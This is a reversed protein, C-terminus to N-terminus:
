RFIARKNLAQQYKRANSLHQSYTKAFTHYGSFDEKACFYLYGHKRYNLVADIHQPAPISIPGPPLGYILYTNYAHKKQTDSILIRHINPTASQAYRVTPDAQLRMGSHLRNIYVGAIDPMEDTKNTEGNVISALTVVEMKNMKLAKLKKEREDSEWFTRWEKNIRNFFDQLGVNWYMQYTNPLFMWVFNEKSFGYRRAMDGDNIAQMLVASDLEIQRAIAGAMKEKTQVAPIHLNVASQLNGALIRVIEKNGMDSTLKFRGAYVKQYKLYKIAYELTWASKVLGSQVLSETVENCTAGTRIYFFGGEEKVNPFYLIFYFFLAAGLMLGPMAGKVLLLVNSHHKKGKKHRKM